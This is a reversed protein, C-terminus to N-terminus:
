YVNLLDMKGDVAEAKAEIQSVVRQESTICQEWMNIELGAWAIATLAKPVCVPPDGCKLENESKKSDTDWLGAKNGAKPVWQWIVALQLARGYVRM